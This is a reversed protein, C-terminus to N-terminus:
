HIVNEAQKILGEPVTVGLAQAAKMNIQFYSESTLVPISGAPTGKFIKDAQIAADAGVSESKPPLGFLSGHGDPEMIAGGIPIRHAYCFDGLISYFAPTIGLPEVLMLVADFGIDDSAARRDLENQLEQPATAAFEILQVGQAQAQPRIADLQGPENPYDKLFPVFIRKASPVMELLVQLRKSATEASGWRVGTINGGPKQISDILTIGPVDTFALAFVVPINTGQTDTKAEIAAETPFALIIDVKENVFKEIAQKYAAMDVNTSQVDYTINKGEIYGLETMKAKFGDAVGSFADLGSLIGVHYVKNTQQTGCASLPLIVLAILITIMLGKQTLGKNFM